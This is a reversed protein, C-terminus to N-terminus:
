CHHYPHNNIVAMARYVQEATILRVLQHPLTVHGFAWSASAKTLVEENLGYAGGIVINLIPSGSQMTKSFTNAIDLTTVNKGHEDLVIYPSSNLSKKLADNESEKTGSKVIKWSLSAFRSIRKEYDNILPLIDKSHAGPTHIHIQFSM